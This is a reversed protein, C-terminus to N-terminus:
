KVTPFLVIVRLPAIETNQPSVGAEWSATAEFFSNCKGHFTTSVTFGTLSVHLIYKIFTLTNQSALSTKFTLIFSHVTKWSKGLVVRNVITLVSFANIRLKKRNQLKKQPLILVIFITTTTTVPGKSLHLLVM